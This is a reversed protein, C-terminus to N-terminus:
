YISLTSWGQLLRRDVLYISEDFINHTPISSYLLIKKGPHKGKIGKVLGLGSECRLSRGVNIIDLCVIHSDILPTSDYSLLDAIYNVRWGERELDNVLKPERDDIVLIRSLEKIESLSKQKFWNRQIRVFPNLM